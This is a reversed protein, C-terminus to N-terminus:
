FLCFQFRHTCYTPYKIDTNAGTNGFDYQMTTKIVQGLVAGAGVLQSYLIGGAAASKEGRLQM